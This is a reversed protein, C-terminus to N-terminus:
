LVSSVVIVGSHFSVWLFSGSYFWKRVFISFVVYVVGERPVSCLRWVAISFIGCSYTNPVFLGFNSFGVFGFGLTPFIVDCAEWFTSTLLRAYERGHGSAFFVGDMVCILCWSGEGAAGSEWSLWLSQSFPRLTHMLQVGDLNLWPIDIHNSENIGLDVRLWIKWRVTKKVYVMKKYFVNHQSSWM